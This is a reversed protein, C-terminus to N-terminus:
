NGSETVSEGISPKHIGLMKLFFDRFPTSACLSGGATFAIDSYNDKAGVDRLATRTDQLSKDAAALTSITVDEKARERLIAILARQDDIRENILEFFRKPDHVEIQPVQMLDRGLHYFSRSCERIAAKTLAADTSAQPAGLAILVFLFGTATLPVVSQNM